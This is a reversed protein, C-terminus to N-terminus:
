VDGVDAIILVMNIHQFVPYKIKCLVLKCLSLKYTKMCVNLMYVSYFLIILFFSIWLSCNLLNIVIYGVQLSMFCAKM